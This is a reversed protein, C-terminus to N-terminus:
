VEGNELISAEAAHVNVRTQPWFGHRLTVPIDQHLNALAGRVYTWYQIRSGYRLWCSGGVDAVRLSEWYQIFRSIGKVIDELNQMPIPKCPKPEGDLLM